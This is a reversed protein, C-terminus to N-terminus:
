EEFRQQQIRQMIRRAMVGGPNSPDFKEDTIAFAQERERELCQRGVEEGVLQFLRKRPQQPEEATNIPTEMGTLNVVSRPRTNCRRLRM